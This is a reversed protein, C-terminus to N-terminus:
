LKHDPLKSAQEASFAQSYAAYKENVDIILLIDSVDDIHSKNNTPIEELTSVIPILYHSCQIWFDSYKLLCKPTDISMNNNVLWSLGIIADRSGIDAVEADLAFPRLESVERTKISIQTNIM